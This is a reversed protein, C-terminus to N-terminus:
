IQPREPLKAGPSGLQRKKMQIRIQGNNQLVAEEALVICANRLFGEFSQGPPMRAMFDIVKKKEEATLPYKEKEDPHILQWAALRGLFIKLKDWDDFVDDRDQWTENVDHEFTVARLESQKDPRIQMLNLLLRERSVIRPERRQQLISLANQLEDDDLRVVDVEEPFLEVWAGFSIARFHGSGLEVKKTDDLFPPRASILQLAERRLEESILPDGAAQELIFIDAIKPRLSDLEQPQLGFERARKHLVKAVSLDVSEEPHKALVDGARLGTRQSPERRLKM